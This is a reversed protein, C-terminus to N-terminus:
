EFFHIHMYIYLYKILSFVKNKFHLFPCNNIYLKKLCRNKLNSAYIRILITPYTHLHKSLMYIILLVNLFPINETHSSLIYAPTIWIPFVFTYVCLELFNMTRHLHLSKFLGNTLTHVPQDDATPSPIREEDDTQRKKRQINSVYNWFKVNKNIRHINHVFKEYLFSYKPAAYKTYPISQNRSTFKIRYFFVYFVIATNIWHNVELELKYAVLLM